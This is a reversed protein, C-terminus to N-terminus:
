SRKWRKTIHREQKPRLVEFPVKLQVDDHITAEEILRTLILVDEARSGTSCLFTNIQTSTDQKQLQLTRFHRSMVRYQEWWTIWRRWNTSGGYIPQLVTLAAKMLVKPVM